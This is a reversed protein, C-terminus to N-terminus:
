NRMKMRRRTPWERASAAAFSFRQSNATPALPAITKGTQAHKGPQVPTQTHCSACSWDDFEHQIEIPTAAHASFGGVASWVAALLWLARAAAGM